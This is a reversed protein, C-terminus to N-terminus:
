RVAHIEPRDRDPAPEHHEGNLRKEYDRVAKALKLVAKMRRVTKPDKVSPEPSASM